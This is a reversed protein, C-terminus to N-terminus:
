QEELLFVASAFEGMLNVSLTGQKGWYVCNLGQKMLFEGSYVSAVDTFKKQDKEAMNVADEIKIEGFWSGSFKTLFYKESQVPISASAFKKLTVFGSEENKFTCWTEIIDQNYYVKFNVTVFFPLVKDKLLVIITEIQDGNKETTHGIYKLETSLLGNAHVVQLAPETFIQGSYSSIIAGIPPADYKKFDTTNQLKKGYYYLHVLSDTSVGYVASTNKTQLVILENINNSKAVAAFLLQLSM